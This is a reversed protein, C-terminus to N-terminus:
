QWSRGDILKAVQEGSMGVIFGVQQDLWFYKKARLPYMSVKIFNTKHFEDVIYFKHNSKIGDYGLNEGAGEIIGKIRDHEDLSLKVVEEGELKGNVYNCAVIKKVVGVAVISKSSYLGLYKFKTNNNRTAPDFYIGYKLNESITENTSFALMTKDGSNEETITTIIEKIETVDKNELQVIGDFKEKLLQTIQHQKQEKSMKEDNLENLEVSTEEILAEVRAENLFVKFGGVEVKNVDPLRLLIQKRFLLVIFTICSPWILVRIFELVLKLVEM